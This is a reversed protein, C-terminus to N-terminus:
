ITRESDLVEPDFSVDGGDSEIADRPEPVIKGEEVM